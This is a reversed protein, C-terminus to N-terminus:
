TLRREDYAAMQEAFSTPEVGALLAELMLDAQSKPALGGKPPDRDLNTPFAYGEACAAVANSLEAESMRGAEQAAKLAPYLTVAMKSRDVSEMARGFASSVQLLNAMRRIDTSRNTGAGHMLAPNFFVADGKALPLQVHNEAFYRQFPEREFALYGEFFTQSYPLLLTPGSEVPMDCHAVAGQLTLLPSVQHIHAPFANMQEPSMFGLHYDRHPTQAAGGPNVRNVQATVQYGRGLWAESAMAIADCAYYHAFNEPEALCHKELANWIRDNAGAKAFHDGGGGSGAKEEEIIRDFIATAEDIVALDTMAGKIVIVGPGSMFVEAWEASLALRAERDRAANRVSGGDYILVNKEVGAAHPWDEIRTERSVEELFTEFRGSVKDLWVKNRRQASLTIVDM